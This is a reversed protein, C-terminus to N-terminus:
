RILSNLTYRLCRENDHDVGRKVVKIKVTMNEWVEEENGM